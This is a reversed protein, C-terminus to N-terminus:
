FEEKLLDVYKKVSKEFVTTKMYEILESENTHGKEIADMIVLQIATQTATKLSIQVM